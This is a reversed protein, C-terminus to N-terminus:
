SFAFFLGPVLNQQAVQDVLQKSFATKGCGPPGILLTLGPLLGNLARSLGPFGTEFGAIEKVERVGELQALLSDLEEGESPIKPQDPM